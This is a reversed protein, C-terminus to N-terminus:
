LSSLSEKIRHVLMTKRKDIATRRCFGQAVGLKGVLVCCQKARSISTYLHERSCVRKAAGSDDIMVIVVPWESGQSRHTSIAYGLEWDCGTGTTKDETEAEGDESDTAEAPGRPVIILRKPASLRVHFYNAEVKVVEALEGNACYVKGDANLTLNEDNDIIQVKGNHREVEVLPYWGNRTNIVKDKLRFPSGKVAENPNLHNQLLRNL